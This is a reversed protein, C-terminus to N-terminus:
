ARNIILGYDSYSSRDSKHIVVLCKTTFTLWIIIWTETCLYVVLIGIQFFAIKTILSGYSVTVVKVSQRDYSQFLVPKHFFGIKLIKVIYGMNLTYSLCAGLCKSFLIWTFSLM